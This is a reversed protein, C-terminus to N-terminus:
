HRASQTQIAAVTPEASRGVAASAELEEEDEYDSRDGGVDLGCFASIVGYLRAVQFFCILVVYGVSVIYGVVM